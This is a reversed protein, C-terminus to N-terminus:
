NLSSILWFKSPVKNLGFISFFISGDGSVALLSLKYSLHNLKFTPVFKQCFVRCPIMSPFSCKYSNFVNFQRMLVIQQSLFRYLRMLSVLYIRFFKIIWFFIKDLSIEILFNLFQNEYNNIRWYWWHYFHVVTLCTLKYGTLKDNKHFNALSNNKWKKKRTLKALWM